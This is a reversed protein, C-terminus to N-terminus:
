TIQVVSTTNQVVCTSTTHVVPLRHLAFHLTQATFFAVYTTCFVVLAIGFAVYTTCLVIHLAFHLMHTAVSDGVFAWVLWQWAWVGFSM